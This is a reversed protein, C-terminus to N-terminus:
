ETRGDEFRFVVDDEAQCMDLIDRAKIEVFQPDRELMQLEAERREIERQLSARETELAQGVATLERFEAFRPRLPIALCAVLILFAVLAGAKIVIDWFHSPSESPLTRLPM